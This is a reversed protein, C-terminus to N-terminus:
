AEAVRHKPNDAPQRVIVPICDFGSNSDPEDAFISPPARYHGLELNL